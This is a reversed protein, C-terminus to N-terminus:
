MTLRRYQGLFQYGLCQSFLSDGTILQGDMGISSGRHCGLQHGKQHGVQPNGLRVRPRMHGIVVRVRLSLELCQFISWTEGISKATDFISACEARCEKGPVVSVMAMRSNPQM